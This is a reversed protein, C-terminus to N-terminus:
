ATILITRLLVDTDSPIETSYIFFVGSLVTPSARFLILPTVICFSLNTKTLPKASLYLKAISLLFTSGDVSGSRLANEKSIMGDLKISLIMMLLDAVAFRGPSKEPPKTCIFVLSTDLLKRFTLRPLPQPDTEVEFPKLNTCPISKGV